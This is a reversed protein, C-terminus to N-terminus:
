RGLGRLVDLAVEAVYHGLEQPVFVRYRGAGRADFIARTGRAVSGVAPFSEPDLDTLRRLTDDGTLEFAALAATADYARVGAHALRELAQM